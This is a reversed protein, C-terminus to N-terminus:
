EVVVVFNHGKECTNIFMSSQFTTDVSSNLRLDVRKKKGVERDENMMSHFTPGAVKEFPGLITDKFPGPIKIGKALEDQVILTDDATYPNKVDLEIYYSYGHGLVVDGIDLDEGAPINALYLDIAINGSKTDGHNITSWTKGFEYSVEFRGLSDTTFPYNHVEKKLGKPTDFALAMDENAIPSQLDCDSYFTGKITYTETKSRFCASIVFILVFYYFLNKM